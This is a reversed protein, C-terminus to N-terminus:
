LKPDDSDFLAKVSAVEAFRLAFARFANQREAQEDLSIALEPRTIRLLRSPHQLAIIFSPVIAGNQALHDPRACFAKPKVELTQAPVREPALVDGHNLFLAGRSKFRHRLRSMRPRRHRALIRDDSERTALLCN